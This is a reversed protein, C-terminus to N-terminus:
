LCQRKAGKIQAQQTDRPGSEDEVYPIVDTTAADEIRHSLSAPASILTTWTNSHLTLLMSTKTYCYKQPPGSLWEKDKLERLTWSRELVFLAQIEYAYKVLHELRGQNFEANRLGRYNTLEGPRKGQSVQAIYKIASTPNTEYIWLRQVTSPLLYRRFEHNKTGSVINTVHEPHIAIIIDTRERNSM